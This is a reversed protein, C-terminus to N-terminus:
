WCVARCSGKPVQLGGGWVPDPFTNGPQGLGARGPGARGVAGRLGEEGLVSANPLLSCVQSFGLHM